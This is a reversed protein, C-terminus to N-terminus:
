LHAIEVYMAKAIRKANSAFESRRPMSRDFVESNMAVLTELHQQLRRCDSKPSSKEKLETILMAFTKGRFDKSVVPGSMGRMGLEDKLPSIVGSYFLHPDTVYRQLYEEFLSLSSQMQNKYPTAPERTGVVPAFLLVTLALFVPGLLSLSRGVDKNFAPVKFVGLDMGPLYPSLFLILGLTLLLLGFSEPLGLTKIISRKSKDM